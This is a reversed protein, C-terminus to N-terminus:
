KNSYLVLGLSTIVIWRAIKSSVNRKKMVDKVLKGIKSNNDAELEKEVMEILTGHNIWWIWFNECDFKNLQYEDFIKNTNPSRYERGHIYNVNHYGDTLYECLSRKDLCKKDFTPDQIATNVSLCEFTIPDEYCNKELNYNNNECNPIPRLWNDIEVKARNKDADVGANMINDFLVPFERHLLTGPKPYQNNFWGKRIYETWGRYKQRNRNFFIDFIKDDFTRRDYRNGFKNKKLKKSKKLKKLKKLTLKVDKITVKNTKSHINKLYLKYKKALLKASISNYVKKM